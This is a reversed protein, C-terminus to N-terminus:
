KTQLQWIRGHKQLPRWEGAVVAGVQGARKEFQSWQGNINVFGARDGIKTDLRGDADADTINYKQGDAPDVVDYSVWDFRGTGGLDQISVLSGGKSQIHIQGPGAIYVAIGNRTVVIEGPAGDAPGTVEYGAVQCTKAHSAWPVELKLLTQQEKTFGNTQLAGTVCGNGCGGLSLLAVLVYPSRQIM